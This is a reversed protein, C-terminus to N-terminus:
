KYILFFHRAAYPIGICLPAGNRVSEDMAHHHQRATGTGSLRGNHARKKINEVAHIKVRRKRSRRSAGGLPKRLRGRALRPRDVTQKLRLVGALASVASTQGEAPAFLIQKVLM